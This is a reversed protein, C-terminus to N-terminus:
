RGFIRLIIVIILAALVIVWFEAPVYAFAQALFSFFDQLMAILDKFGKLADGMGGILDAFGGTADVLKDPSSSSPASSSDSPPNDDPVATTDKDANTIADKDTDATTVTSKPVNTADTQEQRRTDDWYKSDTDPIGPIAPPYVDVGSGPTKGQAADLRSELDDITNNLASIEKAYWAENAVNIVDNGMSFSTLSGYSLLKTQTFNQGVRFIFGLYVGGTAMIAYMPYIYDVPTNFGIAGGPEDNFYLNYRYAYSSDSTQSLFMTKTVGNVAYNFAPIHVGVKGTFSAATLCPAFFAFKALQTPQVPFVPFASGFISTLTSSNVSTLASVPFETDFASTHWQYGINSQSSLTIRAQIQANLEMLADHSIKLIPATAVGAIVIGAKVNDSVNNWIRQCEEAYTIGNVSAGVGIGLAAIAAAVIAAGAGASVGVATGGAAIGAFVATEVGTAHAVVPKQYMTGITMTFILLLCVLLKPIQKLHRKLINKEM